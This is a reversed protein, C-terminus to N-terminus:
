KLNFYFNKFLMAVTVPGVGGPVPALNKEQPWNEDYKVDGQIKGEESVTSADIVTAGDKFEDERFRRGGGTSVVAVDAERLIQLYKPDDKELIKVDLNQAKLFQYLPKGVLFGGGVIVIQKKELSIKYFELLEFIALVTPPVCSYKKSELICHFGDIDKEAAVSRAVNVRNIHKPLPIQVIIGRVTQDQNIRKIEAILEEEGILEDFQALLFDVGLASAMERKKAVYLSSVPDHGVQVVVLKGRPPPTSSLLDITKQALQRGDLIM